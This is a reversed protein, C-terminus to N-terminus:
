VFAPWPSLFIGLVEQVLAWVGVAAVLCVPILIAFRREGLLVAAGILFLATSPLFGLPRLALAYVVMASLLAVAQGIKYDGLRRYDIEPTKKEGASKEIGLLVVLGVVIGLLALIKPFTSPWIPNRRMFPALTEDMVFFASYGYVCCFVVFVLAIIRDLAM